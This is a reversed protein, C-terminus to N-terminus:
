RPFVLDQASVVHRPVLITLGVRVAGVWRLQRGFFCRVNNACKFSQALLARDLRLVEFGLVKFRLVEVTGPQVLMFNTSYVSGGSTSRDCSPVISM